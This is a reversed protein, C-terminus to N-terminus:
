RGEGAAQGDEPQADGARRVALAPSLAGAPRTRRIVHVATAKFVAHVHRGPALGLLSYSEATVHAVLPFGCDLRLKLYPGISAVGTIRAPYVNRASTRGPAAPELVVNEPRICLHVPDGPELEGVAAVTAEGVAVELEWGSRARVEGELITEMGVCGAVFENVPHNLVEAPADDQVIRGEHMVVIRDALRLAEGADHTVLVAAMGAERVTAELDDTIAQRTPADLHSFPEDLLVVEPEVVLARALSVRRAEGGSLKRAARGALGALRFRELYAGVRRRVEARPVGRLRLGTAVNAEVTGDFLLCEQLILALRRRREVLRGDAELEEGRFRAAGAARPLLGMLTQLLTTKGSGNPGILAVIEGAGLRFSPVDLVLHGGREVRVGSLELVAPRASV